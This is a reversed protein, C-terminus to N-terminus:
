KDAMAKAAASQRAKVDKWVVKTQQWVINLDRVSKKINACSEYVGM